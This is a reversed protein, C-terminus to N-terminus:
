HIAGGDFHDMALMIGGPNGGGGGGSHSGTVGDSVRYTLIGAGVSTGTWVVGPTDDTSSYGILSSRVDSGGEQQALQTVGAEPAFSNAGGECGGLVIAIQDATLTGVSASNLSESGTGVENQSPGQEIWGAADYEAIEFVFWQTERYAGAGGAATITLAGDSPVASAEMLEAMRRSRYVQTNQRTWTVGGGTVTHTIGAAATAYATCIFILVQTGTGYGSLSPTASGNVAFSGSDILKLTSM